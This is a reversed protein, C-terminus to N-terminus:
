PARHSAPDRGGCRSRALRDVRRRVERGSLFPCPSFLHGGCTLGLRLDCQRRVALDEDCPLEIGRAVQHELRHGVGVEDTPPPARPVVLRDHVLHVHARAPRPAEDMALGVTGFEGEAALVALDDRRFPDNLCELELRHRAVDLYLRRREGLTVPSGEEGHSGQERRFLVAVAHDLAPHLLAEGLSVVPERLQEGLKALFSPASGALSVLAPSRCGPVPTLTIYPAPGPDTSYRPM